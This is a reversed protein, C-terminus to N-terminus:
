VQERFVTGPQARSAERAALFSAASSIVVVGVLLRLADGPSPMFSADGPLDGGFLRTAIVGGVVVLCATGALGSLATVLAVWVPYCALRIPSIGIMALVALARRRARTMSWFSATLAAFLGVTAVGIMLDLALGLRRELDLTAKVEAADSLAEVGFRAELRIELAAVSHLDAAYLRMSEALVTRGDLPQGESVGLQTVAYGDYFAEIDEMLVPTMLLGDGAMTDPPLVAVVKLTLRLAAEGAEGRRAVAELRDGPALDLRRALASSAAVEDDGIMVNGDLWPDGAGTAVLAARRIATGGERRVMLRRAISRSSPTVFGTEQWGAVDAIDGSAFGHDGAIAVRLVDPRSVLDHILADVVGTKIGTLIGLPAVIGIIAAMNCLTMVRDHWLDAIALRLLIM